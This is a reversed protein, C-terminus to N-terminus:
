YHVDQCRFTIIQSLLGYKHMLMGCAEEARWLLVLM